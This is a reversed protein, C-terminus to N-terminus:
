RNHLRRLVRVALNSDSDGDNGLQGFANAGWCFLRGARNISCSHSLGASVMRTRLGNGLVRSPEARATNTGDGIQGNLNFGWCLTRQNRTVACSHSGGASIDRVGRPLNAVRTPQLRRTLTGDGLRGNANLGWCVARRNRNIACSHFVGTTITRTDNRMGVVRTPLLRNEDTGDGLQGQVNQGWCLARGNSNLACAHFGGVSIARLQRAIRRVPVPLNRDILTGDGLQGFNNQGWCYARGNRNLACTANLGASVAQINRGIGTVREPLSRSGADGLGLQGSLNGGWCYLDGRRDIACVHTGGASIAQVNAGIGRVRVPVASDDRTGNGLQGSNNRGWCFVRGAETLACSHVGGSSIQQVGGDALIDGWGSGAEGSLSPGAPLFLVCALLGAFRRSISPM